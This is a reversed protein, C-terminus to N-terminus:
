GSKGSHARLERNKVEERLLRDAEREKKDWEAAGPWEQGCNLKLNCMYVPHRRLYTGCNCMQSM